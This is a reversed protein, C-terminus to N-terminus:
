EFVQRQENIMKEIIKQYSLKISNSQIYSVNNQNYSFVPLYLQVQVSDKETIDNRPFVKFKNKRHHVVLLPKNYILDMITDGKENYQHYAGWYLHNLLEDHTLKSNFREFPNISFHGAGTGCDLGYEYENKYYPFDAILRYHNSLISDNMKFILQDWRYTWVLFPKFSKNKFNIHFNNDEKKITLELDTSTVEKTEPYGTYFLSYIIDPLFYSRFVYLDTLFISTILICVSLLLNKLKKM